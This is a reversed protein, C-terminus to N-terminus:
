SWRSKLIALKIDWAEGRPKMNSMNEMYRIIVQEKSYYPSDVFPVLQGLEEDTHIKNSLNYAIEAMLRTYFSQCFDDISSKKKGPSENYAICLEAHSPLLKFYKQCFKDTNFVEEEM